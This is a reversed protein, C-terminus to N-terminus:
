EYCQFRFFFVATSWLSERGICKTIAIVCFNNNSIYKFFFFFYITICLTIICHFRLRPLGWLWIWLTTFKWKTALFNTLLFHTSSGCSVLWVYMIFILTYIHVALYNLFSISNWIKHTQQYLGVSYIVIHHNPTRNKRLNVNRMSCCMERHVHIRSAKAGIQNRLFLFCFWRISM